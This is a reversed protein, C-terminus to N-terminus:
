DAKARAVLHQDFTLQLSLRVCRHRGTISGTVTETMRLQRGFAVLQPDDPRGRAATRAGRGGPGLMPRRAKLGGGGAGGGCGGNEAFLKDYRVFELADDIVFVGCASMGTRSYARVIPAVRISNGTVPAGGPQRRCRAPRVPPRRWRGRRPFRGSYQRRREVPCVVRHGRAFARGLAPRVKAPHDDPHHGLEFNRLEITVEPNVCLRCNAGIFSRAAGADHRLQWELWDVVIGAATGGMPPRLHRWARPCTSSPSPCM